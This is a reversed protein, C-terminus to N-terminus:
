SVSYFVQGMKKAPRKEKMSILGGQSTNQLLFHVRESKFYLNLLERYSKSRYIRM